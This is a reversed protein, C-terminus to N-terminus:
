GVHSKFFTLRSFFVVLKTYITFVNTPQLFVLHLGQEHNTPINLTNKSKPNKLQKPRSNNISKSLSFDVIIEKKRYQSFGFSPVLKSSDWNVTMTKVVIM